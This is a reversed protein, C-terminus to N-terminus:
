PVFHYFRGAALLWRGFEGIPLSSLLRAGGLGGRKCTMLLPSVPPRAPKSPMSRYYYLAMDGAPESDIDGLKLPLLGADLVTGRVGSVM